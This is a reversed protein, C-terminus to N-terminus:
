ELILHGNVTINSINQPNKAVIITDKPIVSGEAFEVHDYIADRPFM